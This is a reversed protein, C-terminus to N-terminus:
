ARANVLKYVRAFRANAVVGFDGPAYQLLWDGAVGQLLDGGESRAISFAVPMQKAFVTVRKARYAGDEGIPLGDVGEYKAAFRDRSVSWSDGTVGTILADGRQYRNLGVGSMIEGDQRAFVVNVTEDKVYIAASSDCALDIQSLTQM